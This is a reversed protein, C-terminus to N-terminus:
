GTSTGEGTLLDPIFDEGHKRGKAYADLNFFQASPLHTYICMDSHCVQSNPYMLHSLTVSQFLHRKQHIHRQNENRSDSKSQHLHLREKAEGVNRPNRHQAM